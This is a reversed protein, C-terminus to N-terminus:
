AIVQRLHQLFLDTDQYYNPYARKLQDMSGVSVLVVSGIGELRKEEQLTEDTARAIERQRYGRM